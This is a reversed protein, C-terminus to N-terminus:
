GIERRLRSDRQENNEVQVIGDVLYVRKGIDSPCVRGIANRLRFSARKLHAKTITELYFRAM